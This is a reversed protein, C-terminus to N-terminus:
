VIVVVRQKLGVEPSEARRHYFQVRGVLHEANGRHTIVSARGYKLRM